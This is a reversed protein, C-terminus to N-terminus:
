GPKMPHGFIMKQVWTLARMIQCISSQYPPELHIVHLVFNDLPPDSGQSWDGTMYIIWNMLPSVRINGAINEGSVPEFHELLQIKGTAIDILEIDVPGAGRGSQGDGSIRIIKSERYTLKPDVVGERWPNMDLKVEIQGNLHNWIMVRNGQIFQLDHTIAPLNAASATLITVVPTDTPTLIQARTASPQPTASLSPTPSPTASPRATSSPVPTPSPTISPHHTATPQATSTATGFGTPAPARTSTPRARPSCAALGLAFLILPIPFKKMDVELGSVFLRQRPRFGASRLEHKTSCLYKSLM